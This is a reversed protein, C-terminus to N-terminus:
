FATTADGFSLDAASNLHATMLWLPDCVLTLSLQSVLSEIVQSLGHSVDEQMLDAM